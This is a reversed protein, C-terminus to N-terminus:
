NWFLQMWLVSLVFYPLSFGALTWSVQVALEGIFGQKACVPSTESRLSELRIGAVNPDRRCGIERSAPEPLASPLTGKCTALTTFSRERYDWIYGRSSNVWLNLAHNM